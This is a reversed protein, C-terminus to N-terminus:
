LSPEALYLALVGLSHRWWEGARHQTIHDPFGHRAAHERPIATWGFHRVTVRTEDGAPEFVVDVRTVLDPGFSAQRWDFALREGPEWATVKGIEYVKGGKLRTILRRPESDEFALAGDGRPTIQFMPDPRWWHSIDRTFVEFAHAPTAKVRLAIMVCGAGTM